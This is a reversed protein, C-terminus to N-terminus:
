SSWQIHFRSDEQVLSPVQANAPPNKVVPDGPFDSGQSTMDSEENRINTIQTKEETKILRVLSKNIENGKVFDM